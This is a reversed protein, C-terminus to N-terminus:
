LSFRRVFHPNMMGQASWWNTNCDITIKLPNVRGQVKIAKLNECRDVYVYSLDDFPFGHESVNSLQPLQELYLRKLSRFGVTMPSAMANMEADNIIHDMEACYTITLENLNPLSLVWTAHRLRCCKYIVVACIDKGANMWRVKQLKPLCSLELSELRPFLGYNNDSHNGQAIVETCLSSKVVTLERLSNLPSLFSLDITCPDKEDVFHDLCVGLTCLRSSQLVKTLDARSQLNIGFMIVDPNNSLLEEMLSAFYQVKHAGGPCFLDLVVLKKLQLILGKAITQLHACDRMYLYRLNSLRKLEAPLSNIKTGSMSLYQLNVLSCVEMPFTDRRTGDLDLFLIERFSVISQLPFNDRTVLMTLQPCHVSYSFRKTHALSVWVKRVVRWEEVTMDLRGHSHPIWKGCGGSDNVVWLAMRRMMRHMKVHSTEATFLGSDGNQLLSTELLTSIIHHGRHVPNPVALLGEGIWWEILKNRPINEDELWLSCLLFCAKMTDPLSDYSLKLCEFLEEDMDNLESLKSENLLDIAAIWDRSERKTSMARGITCLAKPLGGCEAVM